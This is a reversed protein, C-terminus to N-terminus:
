ASPILRHLSLPDRWELQYESNDSLKYPIVYEDPNEGGIIDIKEHDINGLGGAACYNIYGVDELPINMLKACLSDIAVADEGALAIRHDVPTGRVPGNGDMGELGDIITFDARVKQAMLYMNYHLWRPGGSHMGRKYNLRKNGNVAPRNIPAAMIMNKLGATMVVTDHTKLRSISIFYNDPNVFIDSIEIKDLHLNRDLVYFPYGNSQNLDIFKLDFEKHLDLYGYNKFGEASNPNASSEAIIIQGHYFPKVFEILARLADVHTACLAVNTSVMNPKIILQKGKLGARIQKEFPQMVEFLMEKRDTGTTFAVTSSSDGAVPKPKPKMDRPEIASLDSFGGALMTASSLGLMKLANRRGMVLHKETPKMKLM